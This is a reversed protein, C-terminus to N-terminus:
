DKYSWPDSAIIDFAESCESWNEVMFNINDSSFVKESYEHNISNCYSRLDDFRGEDGAATIVNCDGGYVRFMLKKAINLAKTRPKKESM